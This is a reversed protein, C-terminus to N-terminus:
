YGSSVSYSGHQEFNWMLEDNNDLNVLPLQSLYEKDIPYFYTNLMNDNWIPEDPSLLDKV